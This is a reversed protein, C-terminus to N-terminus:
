LEFVVYHNPAQLYELIKEKTPQKMFLPRIVNAGRAELYDLLYDIERDVTYTGPEFGYSAELRLPALEWRGQYRYREYMKEDFGFRTQLVGFITFSARYKSLLVYRIRYRDILADLPETHDIKYIANDGFYFGVQLQRRGSQSLMVSSTVLLRADDNVLDKLEDHVSQPWAPKCCFTNLNQIGARLRWDSAINPALMPLHRAVRHQYDAFHGYNAAIVLLACCLLAIRSPIGPSRGLFSHGWAGVLLLIVPFLPIYLRLLHHPLVYGFLVFYTISVVFPFYYAPPLPAADGSGIARRKIARVIILGLILLFLLMFLTSSNGIIANWYLRPIRELAVPIHEPSLDASMSYYPRHLQRSVVRLLPLVTLSGTATFLALDAAAKKLRTKDKLVEKWCLAVCFAYGPLLFILDEHTLAGLGAFLGCLVLYVYRRRAGTSQSYLVLFLYSLLVMLASVTTTMERRAMYIDVPLSAYILACLLIFWITKRKLTLYLIAIFILINVISLLANMLKLATDNYGFIKFGTGMLFYFVPRYTFPGSGIQYIPEGASWSAAINTYYVEDHGSLGRVDILHFRLYFSLFLLATLILLFSWSAAKAM